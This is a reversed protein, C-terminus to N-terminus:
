HIAQRSENRQKWTKKGTRQDKADNGMPDRQQQATPSAIWDTRRQRQSASHPSADKRYDVRHGPQHEDTDWKADM